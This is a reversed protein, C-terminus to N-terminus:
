THTVTESHKPVHEVSSDALVALRKYGAVVNKAFGMSAHLGFGHYISPTNAAWAFPRKIGLKITLKKGFSANADPLQYPDDGWTWVRGKVTLVWLFV